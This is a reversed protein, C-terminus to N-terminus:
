WLRRYLRYILSLSHYSLTIPPLIGDGASNGGVNVLVYYMYSYSATWTVAPLYSSFSIMGIMNPYIGCKYSAASFLHIHSYLYALLYTLLYYTLLNRSDKGQSTLLLLLAM